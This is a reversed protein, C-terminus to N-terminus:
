VDGSSFPDPFFEGPSDNTLAFHNSTAWNISYTDTLGAAKEYALNGTNFAANLWNNTAQDTGNAIWSADVSAMTALIQAKSLVGTSTPTPSPSSSHSPSPSPSTPTPSPRRTPRWRDPAVAAGAGPGALLLTVVLAMGGAVAGAFAFSRLRMPEGEM